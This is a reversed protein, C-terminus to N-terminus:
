LVDRDYFISHDGFFSFTRSAFISREPIWVSSGAGTAWSQLHSLSFTVGQERIKSDCGVSTLAMGVQADMYLNPEAVGDRMTQICYASAGMIFDTAVDLRDFSFQGRAKGQELDAQIYRAVLTNQEWADVRTVFSAWRRDLMARVMFLRFGVSLRQWPEHLVDYVPLIDTTMQDSLEQGIAALVEEMSDFYKYFTGRSVKAERM